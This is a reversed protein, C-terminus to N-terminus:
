DVTPARRRRDPPPPPPEAWGEARAMAVAGLQEIERVLEQLRAANAFWSDYAQAQDPTLNRTATRGAIRRTWSRYPGHLRTPDRHCACGAKGCRGSREVLSGPLCFGMGAIEAAIERQRRRLDADTVDEM